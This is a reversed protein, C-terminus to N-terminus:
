DVIAGVEEPGTSQPDSGVSSPVTCRQTSPDPCPKTPSGFM